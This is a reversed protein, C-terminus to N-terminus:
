YSHPISASWVITKSSSKSNLCNSFQEIMFIKLEIMSYRFIIFRSTQEVYIIWPDWKERNDMHDLLETM